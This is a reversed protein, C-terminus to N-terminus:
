TSGRLRAEVEPWPMGPDPNARYDALERDLLGQEFGSAVAAEEELRWLHMLVENREEASLRSLEALIETKTM